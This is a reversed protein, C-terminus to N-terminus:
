RCVTSLKVEKKGIQIGKIEKKHRSLVALVINFLLSSLPCGKRTGSRLPFAKLRGGNLVINAHPKDYVARNHYTEKISLKKVTKIMFLHQLKDFAKEAGISIIMHIKDKMRNMHHIVNMSKPIDFTGQM